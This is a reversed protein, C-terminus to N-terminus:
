EVRQGAVAVEEGKKQLQRELGQTRDELKTVEQWKEELEAKHEMQRSAELNEEKLKRNEM